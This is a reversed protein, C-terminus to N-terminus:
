DVVPNRDVSGRRAVDVRRRPEEADSAQYRDLAVNHEEAGDGRRALLHRIELELEGAAPRELRGQSGQHLLELQLFRHAEEAVDHRHLPRDLARRDHDDRREALAEPHDRELRHLTRPRHDGCGDAPEAVDDPVAVRPQEDWSALDLRQAAPDVCWSPPTSPAITRPREAAANTMRASATTMTTTPRRTGRPRRM